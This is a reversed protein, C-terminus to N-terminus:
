SKGCLTSICQNDHLMFGENCYDCVTKNKCIKCNPVELNCDICGIDCEGCKNTVPNM